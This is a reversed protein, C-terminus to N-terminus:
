SWDKIIKVLNSIEHNKLSIEQTIRKIQIEHGFREVMENDFIKLAFIESGKEAKFVAASKGNNILKLVKFESIIKNKIRKELEISKLRDM